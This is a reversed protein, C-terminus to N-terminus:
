GELIDLGKEIYELMKKEEGLLFRENTGEFNPYIEWYPKGAHGLNQYGDFYISIRKFKPTTEKKVLFRITAGAFPPVIKVQWHAPFQLYPLEETWKMSEFNSDYLCSLLPNGKKIVGENLRLKEFSKIFEENAKAFEEEEGIVERCHEEMKKAKYIIDLLCNIDNM